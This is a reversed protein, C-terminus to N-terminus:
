FQEIKLDIAVNSFGFEDCIRKIIYRSYHDDVQGRARLIFFPPKVALQRLSKFDTKRSGRQAAKRELVWEHMAKTLEHDNIQRKNQNNLAVVNKLLSSFGLQQLASVAVLKIHSTVPFLFRFKDIKEKLLKDTIIRGDQVPPNTLDWKNLVFLFPKKHEVIKDAIKKEQDSLEERRDLVLLAVDCAAIAEETRKVAFYELREKLKAARRLGATDLIVFDQGNFTFASSVTDRTTHAISSVISNDQGCLANALSSKGVNPKGVIAIKITNDATLENNDNVIVPANNLGKDDNAAQEILSILAPINRNHEASIFITKFGLAYFDAAYLEKEPSDCKNVVLILNKGRLINILEYDDATLGTAETVLLILHANDIQSLSQKIALRELPSESTHIGGTDVLAFQNAGLTLSRSIADRTVGAIPDTIAIRKKLLRNFLTSKGVNPKGVIAIRLNDL